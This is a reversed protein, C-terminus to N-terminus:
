LPFNFAQTFAYFLIILVCLYGLVALYLRRWTRFLPPKEEELNQNMRRHEHSGADPLM